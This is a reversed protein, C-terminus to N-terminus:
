SLAGESKMHMHIDALRMRTLSLVAGMTLAASLLSSGGYSIFPLTMGKAPLLAVNVGMNIVAQLGFIMLLGPVALRIFPDAHGAARSLGRLVVFAFLALILLCVIAGFEEGIVAFVFDTHADPLVRKVTGEGPGAGLWGGHQFAEMAKDMQFANGKEPNFFADIRATVHPVFLYAFGLGVIAMVGLLATWLMPLGAMFLLGLWVMTALATQGYDPQLVLLLAFLAYLAFALIHVPMGPNEQKQSLLWAVLIIFAPKVLESPQLSFGGISVWRTAGKIVPGSVIAAGMLALGIVCVALALRRIQRANLLSTGILVGVAPLLFVAQRLVFHYDALGLRHAVPPSAAFSFLMGAVMLVLVATLMWRDVTWWWEGFASKDTRSFM